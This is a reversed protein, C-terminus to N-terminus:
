YPSSLLLTNRYVTVYHNRFYVSGTELDRWPRWSRLPNQASYLPQIYSGIIQKLISVNQEAKKASTTTLILPCHRIGSLFISRSCTWENNFDAQLEIIVNPIKFSPGAVYMHYFTNYIEVHIVANRDKCSVCLEIDYHDQEFNPGVLVITLDKIPSLLHLLIEWANLYERELVNLAVMHIVYKTEFRKLSYLGFNMIGHFFTLPGSIYDCYFYKSNMAAIDVSARLNVYSGIFTNMDSFPKRQYIINTFKSETFECLFAGININIYLTFHQCKPKHLGQFEQIHESCYYDSYCTQCHELNIQRHCISCSKAFLIMQEEYLKLKRPIWKKISSLFQQRLQIWKFLSLACDRRIKNERLVRIIYECIQMHQPRHMLSHEPTCYSIMDCLNCSIFSGNNVKKCVHCINEHFFSNYNNINIHPGFENVDIVKSFNSM